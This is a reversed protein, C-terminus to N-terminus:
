VQVRTLMFHNFLTSPQYAYKRTEAQVHLTILPMWVDSMRLRNLGSFMKMELSPPPAPLLQALPKVCPSCTCSVSSSMIPLGEDPVTVRQKHDQQFPNATIAYTM